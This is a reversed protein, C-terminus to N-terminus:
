FTSVQGGRDVRNDLWVLAPDADGTAAPAVAVRQIARRRADPSIDAIAQVHGRLSTLHEADRDAVRRVEHQVLLLRSATSLVQPRPLRSLTQRHYYWVLGALGGPPPGPISSSSRRRYRPFM